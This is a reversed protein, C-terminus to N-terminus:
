LRGTRSSDRVAVGRSQPRMGDVRRRMGVGLGRGRARRRGTDGRFRRVRAPRSSHRGGGGFGVDRRRGDFVLADGRRTAPASANGGPAEPAVSAVGFPLDASIHRKKKKKKRSRRRRAHYEGYSERSGRRTRRSGLERSSVRRRARRARRRKRKRLRRRNRPARAVGRVAGSDAGRALARADRGRPSGRRPEATEGGRPRPRARARSPPRGARRRHPRALRRVLHRAVRHIGPVRRPGRRRPVRARRLGGGPRGRRGRADLARGSM